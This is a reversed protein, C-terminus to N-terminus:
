QPPGSTSRAALCAAFRQQRLSRACVFSSCTLAQRENGPSRTNARDGCDLMRERRRDDDYLGM